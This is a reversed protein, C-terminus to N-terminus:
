LDILMCSIYLRTPLVGCKPTKPPMKKKQTTACMWIYRNRDMYVRCYYTQTHTHTNKKKQLEELRYCIRWHFVQTYQPFLCTCYIPWTRPPLTIQRSSRGTHGQWRGTHLWHIAAGKIERSFRCEYLHIKFKRSM